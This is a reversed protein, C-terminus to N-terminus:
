INREVQRRELYERLIENTNRLERKKIYFQLFAIVMLTDVLLVNLAAISNVLEWIPTLSGEVRM